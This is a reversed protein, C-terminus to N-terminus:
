ETDGTLAAAILERNVISDRIMMAFGTTDKEPFEGAPVGMLEMIRWLLLVVGPLDVSDRAAEINPNAVLRAAEVILWADKAYSEVGDTQTGQILPLEHVFRDIAAQLDTYSLKRSDNM